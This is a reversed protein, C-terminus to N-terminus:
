SWKLRPQVSRLRNLKSLVSSRIEDIGKFNRVIKGNEILPTLLPKGKEPPQKLALTVTDEFSEEDRYVQKKGGLDGRKARFSVKGDSEVQVIKMSFDIV